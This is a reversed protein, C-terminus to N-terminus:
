VDFRVVLTPCFRTVVQYFYQAVVVNSDAWQTIIDFLGECISLATHVVGHSDYLYDQSHALLTQLDLRASSQGIAMEWADTLREILVPEILTANVHLMEYILANELLCLFTLREADCGFRTKFRALMHQPNIMVQKGVRWPHDPKEAREDDHEDYFYAEDYLQALEESTYPATYLDARCSPITRKNDRMWALICNQGFAHNCLTAVALHDDSCSEYYISCMEGWVLGGSAKLRHLYDM